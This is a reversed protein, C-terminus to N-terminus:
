IVIIKEAHLVVGDLEVILFYIGKQLGTIDIQGKFPLSEVTRGMLDLIKIETGIKDDLGEQSEIHLIGQSVPNPYVVFGARGVHAEEEISTLVQLGDACEDPLLCGMSDLKVLWIDKSAPKRISGVLIFDKDQTEQIGSLYSFKDPFNLDVIYREWLMEGGQTFAFVWGALGYDNGSMAAPGLDAYGCGVILGNSTKILDTVVLETFDSFNYQDLVNGLSDLWVMIPPRKYLGSFQHRRYNVVFGGNDLELISSAAAGLMGKYGSFKSTWRENGMPDLRTVTMFFTDAIITSEEPTLYSVVIDGNKALIIDELTANKYNDGVLKEWILNGQLDTQVMWVAYKEPSLEADNLLILSSDSSFILTGNVQWPVTHFTKLWLSDGEQDTKMLFVDYQGVGAQITGSFYYMGDEEDLVAGINGHAKGATIWWPFNQYQVQNTVNGSADTNLITFCESINNNCLSTATLLYGSGVEHVSTGGDSYGDVDINKSFPAQASALPAAFLLFFLKCLNKMLMSKLCSFLSRPNSM